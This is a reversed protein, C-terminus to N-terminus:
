RDELILKEVRRLRREIFDREAQVNALASAAQPMVQGFIQELRDFLENLKEPYNFYFAWDAWLARSVANLYITCSKRFNTEAAAVDVDQHHPATAVWDSLERLSARFAKSIQEAEGSRQDAAKEGARVISLMLLHCKDLNGMTRALLQEHQVIKERRANLVDYVGVASQRRAEAIQRWLLIAAVTAAGVSLVGTLLTQYRNLWYDLGCLIAGPADHLGVVLLVATMVVGFLITAGTEARMRGLQRESACFDLASSRRGSPCRSSRGASVYAAQHM